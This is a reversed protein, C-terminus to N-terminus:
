KALSVHKQATTSLQRASHELHKHHRAAHLKVHKKPTVVHRHAKTHSSNMALSSGTTAHRHAAQGLAPAAGIALAVAGTWVILKRSLM